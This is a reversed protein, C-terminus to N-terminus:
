TPQSYAGRRWRFDHLMECICLTVIMRSNVVDQVTTKRIDIFELDEMARVADPNRMAHYRTATSIEALQESTTGFEHMHRRAAM